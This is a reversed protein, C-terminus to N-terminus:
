KEKIENIYGSKEEQSETDLIFEAKKNDCNDCYGNYIEPDRTEDPFYTQPTSGCESCFLNESIKDIMFDDSLDM